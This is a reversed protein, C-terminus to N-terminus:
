DEWLKAEDSHHESRVKEFDKQIEETSRPPNVKLKIRWLIEELGDFGPGDDGGLDKLIGFCYAIVDRERQAQSGMFREFKPKEM